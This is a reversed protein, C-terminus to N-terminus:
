FPVVGESAFGRFMGMSAGAITGADGPPFYDGDGALLGLALSSEPVMAIGLLIPGSQPSDIQKTFDLHKIITM